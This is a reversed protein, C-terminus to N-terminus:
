CFLPFFSSWHWRPTAGLGWALATRPYRMKRRRDM